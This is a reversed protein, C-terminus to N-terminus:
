CMSQRICLPEKALTQRWLRWAADVSVPLAIGISQLLAATAPLPLGVVATFSGNVQEVLRGGLGQIGYSGAKDLPEGTAVYDAIEADSLAALRVDAAVLDFLPAGSAPAPPLVVIGTYVRHTRGSLQRLMRRAHDPDRPKGLVVEDLVVITDAGLIAASHGAERAANAKRWALLSPHGPQALPYPPLAQIVSAPVPAQSEEGDTVAVAFAIGMSSLLDYRRPSASALILSPSQNTV